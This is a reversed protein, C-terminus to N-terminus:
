EPADGLSEVEDDNGGLARDFDMLPASNIGDSGVGLQERIWHVDIEYNTVGYQVIESDNYHEYVITTAQDDDAQDFLKALQENNM